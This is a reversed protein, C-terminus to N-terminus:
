DVKKPQTAILAIVGAVLGWFAAGIGFLSIGSATVLFTIVAAERSRDEKMASLLGNAITAFLAIGGLSLVLEKPFASLLAIIASSMLAVFLYIVGASVSAIYRQSPDKHAEPGACIAATIAAFNVSFAGFPALLFTAVGTGTIIPSIRPHYGASRLIIVGPLNQSAMTVVFLPIGVGILVSWSFTPMVFQPEAFTFGVNEFHLSGAFGAILTGVVFVGIVAYRPFMRKGIFYVLLMAIVLFPEAKMSTFVDMGFKLLIGALMASALPVPIRRVAKEFWGTVGAIIMLLGCFLFAGVTESMPTNLLSVSLLAAGPTSWAALIPIRYYLSFIISVLGAGLCVAFIWSSTQAPTAGAASAAQFLIAVSSVFGVVVAIGGTLITPLMMMLKSNKM